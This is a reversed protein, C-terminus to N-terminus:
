GMQSAATGVAIFMGGAMSGATGLVKGVSAGLASPTLLVACLTLILPFQLLMSQMIGLNDAFLTPM